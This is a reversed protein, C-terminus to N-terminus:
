QVIEDGGFSENILKVVDSHKIRWQGNVKGARIKGESIWKRMSADNISFLAAAESVTYLKIPNAKDFEAIDEPVPQTM